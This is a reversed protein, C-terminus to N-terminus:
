SCVGHLLRTLVDLIDQRKGRALEEYPSRGGLVLPLSVLWLAAEPRDDFVYVAQKAVEPDVEATDFFTIGREVAARIVSIMEQKDGPPGYAFSMGM